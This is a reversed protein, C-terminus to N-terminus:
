FRSGVGDQGTRSGIWGSVIGILGGLAVNQAVLQVVTYTSEIGGVAPKLFLLFALGVASVVFGALVCGEAADRILGTAKGVRFGILTYLVVNIMMDIEDIPWEPPSGRATLFVALADALGIILGVGIGWVVSPSV